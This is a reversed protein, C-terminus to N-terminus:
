DSNISVIPATDPIGWSLAHGLGAQIGTNARPDSALPEVSRLPTVGSTRKPTLPLCSVYLFWLIMLLMMMMMVMMVTSPSCSGAVPLLLGMQSHDPISLSSGKCSYMRLRGSMVWGCGLTLGPFEEQSGSGGNFAFFLAMTKQSLREYSAECAPPVSPPCSASHTSAVTPSPVELPTWPLVRSHM